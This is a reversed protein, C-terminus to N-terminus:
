CTAAAHPWTSRPGLSRFKFRGRSSSLRVVQAANAAPVAIRTFIRPTDDLGHFAAKRPAVCFDPGADNPRPEAEGCDARGSSRRDRLDSGNTNGNLAVWRPLTANGIRPASCALEVIETTTCDVGIEIMTTFEQGIDPVVEGEREDITTSGVVSNQCDIAHADAIEDVLVRVVRQDETCTRIDHKRV